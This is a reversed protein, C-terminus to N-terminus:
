GVRTQLEDQWEQPLYTKNRIAEIRKKLPPHTAFLSSFSYRHDFYLHSYALGSTPMDQISERGIKLLANSIGDAQRTFQVACADALYERERSVSAKLLSGFFWSIAGASLFILAILYVVAQGRDRESSGTSLRAVQLLRLALYLVFFFGMIMAALQLSMRMDGNYIHGFEHAIVGQLEDRSLRDLAGRTVGIATKDKTLGAAFANIQHYDLIYVEPMPQNSAISIEQVINLLQEEEISSPKTLKIGGMSKAVYGGGHHSFLTYQVWAAFGTICFFLAGFLPFNFAYEEQLYGRLLVEVLGAMILTLLCFAFLYWKTKKQARRQAAWFDM